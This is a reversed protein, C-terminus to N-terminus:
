FTFWGRTPNLLELVLLTIVGVVFVAIIINKIINARRLSKIEENEDAKIKEIQGKLADILERKDSLRREYHEKREEHNEKMLSIRHEYSEILTTTDKTDEKKRNPNLMEDISGDMAYVTPAVSALRPDDVNAFFLNKVTSESKQAKEAIEKFTLGTKDKLSNLYKAVIEKDM